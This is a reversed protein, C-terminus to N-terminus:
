GPLLGNALDLVYAADYTAFVLIREVYFKDQVLRASGHQPLVILFLALVRM